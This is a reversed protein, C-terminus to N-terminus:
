GESTRDIIHPQNSTGSNGTMHAFAGTDVTWEADNSPDNLTMAALAQPIDDPQLSHNFREWCKLAIHGHKGCIQCVESHTSDRGTGRYANNNNSGGPHTKPGNSRPAHNAPPFGRG